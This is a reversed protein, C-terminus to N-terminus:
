PDESIKGSNTGHYVVFRRLGLIMTEEMQDEVTLTERDRRIQNRSQRQIGWVCEPRESQYVSIKFCLHVEWVLDWINKEHGTDWTIGANKEKKPMILSKM